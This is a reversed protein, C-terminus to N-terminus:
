CCRGDHRRCCRRDENPTASHRGRRSRASISAPCTPPQRASADRRRCLAAINCTHKAFISSGPSEIRRLLVREAGFAQVTMGAFAPIRNSTAAHAQLALLILMIPTPVVRTAGGESGYTRNERM